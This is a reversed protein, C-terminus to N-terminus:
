VAFRPRNFIRHPDLARKITVDLQKASARPTGAHHPAALHASAHCSELTPQYSVPWQELVASIGHPLRTASGHAFSRIVQPLASLHAASPAVETIRVTGRDPHYLLTANPFHARAHAALAAGHSPATRARLVFAEDAVNCLARREATTIERLSEVYRACVSRLAAVRSANGAIRAYLMSAGDPLMQVVMALPQRHDLMFTADAAAGERLAGAVVAHVPPQAHLRLSVETIVGLTGNAGTHLRVLDFGAVNKVVRGGARVVAGTGNITRCGLVLDRIALAEYSLAGSAATAVVAGITSSPTGYPTLPFMQGQEHTVQTLEELTTGGRVTIVLDGPTYEVVGAHERVSLKVGVCPQMGHLWSGSGAIRLPTETAVAERVAATLRSLCDTVDPGIGGNAIGPHWAM